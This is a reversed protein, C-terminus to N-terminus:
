QEIKIEIENKCEKCKLFVGSCKATNDYIILNKGCVPCKYWKRYLAPKPLRTVSTVM